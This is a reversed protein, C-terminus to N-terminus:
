TLLVESKKGDVIPKHEFRRLRALTGPTVRKAGFRSM